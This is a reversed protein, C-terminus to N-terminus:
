IMLRMFAMYSPYVRSSFSPFLSVMADWHSRVGNAGRKGVEDDGKLEAWLNPKVIRDIAELFKKEESDSWPSSTKKPSSTTPDSDSKPKKPTTPTTESPRKPPM